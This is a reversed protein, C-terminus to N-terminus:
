SINRLVTSLGTQVVHQVGGGLRGGLQVYKGRLIRQKLEKRALVEPLTRVWLRRRRRGQLRLHFTGPHHLISSWPSCRCPPVLRHTLYYILQSFRLSFRHLLLFPSPSTYNALIQSCM